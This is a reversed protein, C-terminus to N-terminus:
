RDKEREKRAQESTSWWMGLRFESNTGTAAYLGKLDAYLTSPSVDLEGAIAKINKGEALRRLMRRSRPTTLSATERPEGNWPEARDWQQYFVHVFTTVLSPHTVMLAPIRAPDGHHDTLFVVREDVIVMREFPPLATRVEGGIATMRAVYEAEPQRSRANDLYITRFTLGKERLARDTEWALDLTEQSRIRPHATLMCKTAATTARGIEVVVDDVDQLVCISGAEAKNTMSTLEDALASMSEASRMAARIDRAVRQVYSREATRTDTALYTGASTGWSALGLSLLEDLGPEGRSAREGAHLRMLLERAVDSIFPKRRGKDSNIM